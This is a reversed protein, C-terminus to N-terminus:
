WRTLNVLRRSAGLKLIDPKKEATEVLLKGAYRVLHDRTIKRGFAM